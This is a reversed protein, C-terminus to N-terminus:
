NIIEKLENIIKAPFNTVIAKVGLNLAFKLDDRKDISYVGLYINHNKSDEAIEQNIEFTSCVFADCNIEKQIQSPLRKDKPIKIAAVPIEPHTEKIFKLSHYYFSSILVKDQYNFEFLLNLINTLNEFYHENNINKIELNLYAKGNILNLVESLLPIKEGTFKKDFWSGADFSKLTSLKLNKTFGTGDTTRSLAKDHFVVVESDATVQIDAEIMNAGAEIAEKFAALTNEPATGSSGRHAVILLENSKAFDKLSIM